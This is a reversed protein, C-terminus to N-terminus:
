IIKDETIVGIVIYYEAGRERGDEFCKVIATNYPKIVAKHKDSIISFVCDAHVSKM